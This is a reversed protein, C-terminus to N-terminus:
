LSFYKEFNFGFGRAKYEGSFKDLEYNGTIEGRIIKELAEIVADIEDEENYMGFSMRVAGPVDSRDHQLIMNELKVNEDDSVGLLNKIYPHACFCGNRVGIASEYNLIAAVLGHSMGKINFSIVGLRDKVDSEDTSGYIRVEPIKNMKKLAYATLRAEHEAIKDMGIEMIVQLAKALAIAGVVNPTGAEEKEPVDTWFVHDISVVDVTGGGVYDPDGETFAKRNAALVGLGFPAYIKHASFALYDIHEPDNQNGMDISRHPAYQAADIMLEAGNEHVMRAIEPIPNIYGTVNSAGTIAVLQVRGKYQALKHQLDNLDLRGRDDVDIHIVPKRMRWPLDNSHHEMKSTFIVSDERLPIRRALKNIAETANKGFIITHDEDRINCFRRVIERSQEYFYTSIQSKFGTGRHISSYWNMFENVTEMVPKLTPTSAANDLFIYRKERGSLIPVKKDYGVILNSANGLTYRKQHM